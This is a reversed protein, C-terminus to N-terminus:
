RAVTAGHAGAEPAVARALREAEDVLAARSARSLKELPSLTVVAERRKVEMKWTGAVRGDVLYTPLIRLNRREYVADRHEDPLIRARRKPGYALLVSDFPALLRPAAPTEPDPRPADPLDHLTQGREDEFLVLRPETRALAARVPPTPWGIWGAVDEAGAPGFARLHRLVAEDLAAHPAIARRPKPAARLAGPAKPGFGGDGPVRVFGPWRMLARWQRSRQAEVEDAHLAGPHAEVWAEAFAALDDSTRATRRAHAVLAALLRRAEASAEAKSRRWDAVAAAVAAYTQHERASVLHLTTRLLTGTVLEGDDLAAYLDAPQFGAVRSWLAIPVAPWHQAQVAGIAEVAEVLPADLRDLLGQRALLARNLAAPTLRQAGRSM